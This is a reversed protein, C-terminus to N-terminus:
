LFAGDDVTIYPKSEKTSLHIVMKHLYEVVDKKIHIPMGQTDWMCIYDKGIVSQDSGICDNIHIGGDDIIM